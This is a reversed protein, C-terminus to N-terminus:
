QAIIHHGLGPETGIQARLFEEVDFAALAAQGRARHNDNGCHAREFHVAANHLGVQAAFIGFGYLATRHVEDAM